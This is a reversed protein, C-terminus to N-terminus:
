ERQIKRVPEKLCSVSEEAGAEDQICMLNFLGNAYATAIEEDGVYKESLEKLCSVSEETGAEDQNCTLIALGNAYRLAIEANGEYRESLERLPQSKKQKM